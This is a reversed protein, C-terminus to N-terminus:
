RADAAEPYERDVYWELGLEAMFELFEAPLRDRPVRLSRTWDVMGHHGSCGTPGGCGWVWGRPDELVARGANLERRLTQQPVLHCRVLRGVCPGAGPLDAFFCRRRTMAALEPVDPVVM